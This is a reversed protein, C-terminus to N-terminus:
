RWGRVEVPVAETGDQARRLVTEACDACVSGNAIMANDVPRSFRVILAKDHCEGCCVCLTTTEQDPDISSDTKPENQVMTDMSSALRERVAPSPDEYADTPPQSNM